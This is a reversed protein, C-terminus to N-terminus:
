NSEIKARISARKHQEGISATCIDILDKICDAACIRFAPDKIPDMCAMIAQTLDRIRDKEENIVSLVGMPRSPYVERLIPIAQSVFTDIRDEVSENLQGILEEYDKQYAKADNKDLLQQARNVAERKINLKKKPSIPM